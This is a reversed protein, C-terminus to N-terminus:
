DCDGRGTADDHARAGDLAREAGDLAAGPSLWAVAIAAAVLLAGLLPARYARPWSERWPDDSAATPPPADVRAADAVLLPARHRPAPM